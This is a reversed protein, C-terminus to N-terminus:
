RSPRYNLSREIIAAFYFIAFLPAALRVLRGPWRPPPACALTIVVAFNLIGGWHGLRSAIPTASGLIVVSDIAYQAFSLAILVPIYVPISGAWAECSVATLVFVIDAIADLWRGFEDLSGARRAVRGDAFDSAAGALAIPGLLAPRRNGSACAAIWLFALLFRSASLANAALKWSLKRRMFLFYFLSFLFISIGAALFSSFPSSV